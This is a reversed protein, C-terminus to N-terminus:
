QFARRLANFISLYVEETANSPLHVQINYHFEPRMAARSVTAKEDAPPVHQQGIEDEAESGGADEETFDAARLLANFTGVIKKTMEQDSGSVQGVLGRLEEGSLQHANENAAFLPAYARRIAAAVARRARSPNKLASYEATPRGSADIFGLTRLLPILPRDTTSKLGLTNHLFSQSFAEPQKAAAIRNFVAEVNKYSALYPLSAAMAILLPYPSLNPGAM